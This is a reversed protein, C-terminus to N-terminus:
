YLVHYFFPLLNVIVDIFRGRLCFSLDPIFLLYHLPHYPWLNVSWSMLDLSLRRSRPRIWFVHSSRNWSLSSGPSGTIHGPTVWVQRCLLLLINDYYHVFLGVYFKPLDNDKSNEDLLAVISLSRSVKLVNVQTYSQVDLHSTRIYKQSVGRYIKNM